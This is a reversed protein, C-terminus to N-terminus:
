DCQFKSRVISQQTLPTIVVSQSFKNKHQIEFEINIPQNGPEVEVPILVAPRGLERGTKESQFNSLIQNDKLYSLNSIQSYKSGYVGILLRNSNRKYDGLLVDGRRNMYGPLYRDSELNSSVSIFHRSIDPNDPDTCALAEANLFYDLKNEGLNNFTIFVSDSDSELNRHLDLEIIANKLYQKDSYVQVRGEVRAQNVLSFSSISVLESLPLNSFLNSTLEKLYIIRQDDKEEFRIYPEYLTKTVFNKGDIKEDQVYFIINEKELLRAVVIPDITLVGELPIQLYRAFKELWVEAAYPFHPSVNDNLWIASAHEGYLDNFEFPQKIQTPYYQPLDDNAAFEVLEVQMQGVSLVAYFGLLGGTARSEAPNQFILLWNKAENAAYTQNILTALNSIILETSFIRSSIFGKTGSEFNIHRACDIPESAISIVNPEYIIKSSINDRDVLGVLRNIKDIIQLSCENDITQSQYTSQSTMSLREGFSYMIQNLKFGKDLTFISLQATSILFNQFNVIIGFLLVALTIFIKKV